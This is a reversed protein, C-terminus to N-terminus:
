EWISKIEKPTAWKPKGTRKPKLGCLNMLNKKKMRAPKIIIENRKRKIELVTGEKISLDKRIELPVVVRGKEDIVTETM